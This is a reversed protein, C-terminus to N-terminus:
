FVFRNAKIEKFSKSTANDIGVVENKVQHPM